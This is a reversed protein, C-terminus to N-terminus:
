LGSGLLYVALIRVDGSAEAAVADRILETTMMM